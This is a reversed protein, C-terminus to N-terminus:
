LGQREIGTIYGAKDMPDQNTTDVVYKITDYGNVNELGFRKTTSRAMVLGVNPNM